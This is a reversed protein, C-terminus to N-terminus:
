PLVPQPKCNRAGMEWGKIGTGERGVKRIEKPLQLEDWNRMPLVTNSGKYSISFDERFIRWDRETMEELSKETWHKEVQSRAHM